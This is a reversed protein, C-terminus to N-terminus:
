MGPLIQLSRDHRQKADDSFRIDIRIEGLLGWNIPTFADLKSESMKHARAGMIIDGDFVLFVGARDLAAIRVANVFNRRADTELRGGPIQAGTIVVPRGIDQLVFSLASATYAMTDTGHTIVFGDYEKYNRHIVQGLRDWIQPNMNSSDINDIFEVSLSAIEKQLRPEMGLLLEIAADKENVVLSGDEPNERMILTGGCFLLLIKPLKNAAGTDIQYQEATNFVSPNVSGARHVSDDDLLQSVTLFRDSTTVRVHAPAPIHPAEPFSGNSGMRDSDSPGRGVSDALLGIDNDDIDEKKRHFIHKVKDM